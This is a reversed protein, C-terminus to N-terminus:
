IGVRIGGHSFDLSDDSIEVVGGQISEWPRFGSIPLPSGAGWSDWSEYHGPRGITPGYPGVRVPDAISEQIENLLKRVEEM